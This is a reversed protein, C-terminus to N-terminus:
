NARSPDSLRRPKPSYCTPRGAGAPDTLGAPWRARLLYDGDRKVSARWKERDGQWRRGGGECACGSLFRWFPFLREELHATRREIHKPDKLRGKAIRARLKVLDGVLAKLSRRRM